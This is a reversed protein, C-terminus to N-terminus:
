LHKNNCGMMYHTKTEGTLTFGLSEYLRKAKVNIKLVMLGVTCNSKFAKEIIDKIIQTGLGKGQFGPDIQLEEIYIQDPKEILELVGIDKGDVSIIQIGSKFRNDCFQRQFMEDWGGFVYDIYDTYVAKNLNYVFDYDAKDAKRLQYM